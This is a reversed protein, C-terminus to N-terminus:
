ADEEPGTDEEDDKRVLDAQVKPDQLLKNIKLVEDLTEDRKFRFEPVFKTTSLHSYEHRIHSAARNLGKVVDDTNNGGLDSVFVVANRYDASMRVESVSIYANVLAPDRFDARQILTALMHRIEEGMRLQRQTVTKGSRRTM